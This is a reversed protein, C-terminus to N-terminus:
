EERDKDETPWDEAGLLRLMDSNLREEDLESSQRRRQLEEFIGAWCYQYRPHPRGLVMRRLGLIGVAALAGIGIDVWELSSWADDSRWLWGIVSHTVSATFTLLLPFARPVRSLASSSSEPEAPLMHIPRGDAELTTSPGRNQHHRLQGRMLANLTLFAKSALGFIFLPPIFGLVEWALFTWRNSWPLVWPGLWPIYKRKALCILLSLALHTQAHHWLKRM